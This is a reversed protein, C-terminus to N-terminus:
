IDNHDTGSCFIFGQDVLFRYRRITMEDLSYLYAIRRFSIHFITEGYPRFYFQM